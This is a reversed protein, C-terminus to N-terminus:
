MGPTNSVVEGGTDGGDTDGLVNDAGNTQPEPMPEPANTVAEMASQDNLPEMSTNMDIDNAVNDSAKEGGGCAALGLAAGAILASRIIMQRM